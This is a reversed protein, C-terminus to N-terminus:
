LYIFQIGPRRLPLTPLAKPPVYVPFFLPSGTQYASYLFDTESTDANKNHPFGRDELPRELENEANISGSSSFSFSATQRAALTPHHFLIGRDKNSYSFFFYLKHPKLFYLDLHSIYNVCASTSCQIFPHRTRLYVDLM